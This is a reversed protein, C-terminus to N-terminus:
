KSKLKVNLEKETEGQDWSGSTNIFQPDVFKVITDLSKFEGNVEGDIDKFQLLFNQDKPFEVFRVQYDGNMDSYASDKYLIGNQDYGMLVRINSISSEDTNSQINGKVIFTAHPTGYLAAMKQDKECATAFGLFAIIIAILANFKRRISFEIKQMIFVKKCLHM